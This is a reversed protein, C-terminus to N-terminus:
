WNRWPLTNIQWACRARFELAICSFTRGLAKSKLYLFRCTFCASTKNVSICKVLYHGGSKADRFSETFYIIETRINQSRLGVTFRGLREFVTVDHVGWAYGTLTELTICPSHIPFVSGFNNFSFSFGKVKM